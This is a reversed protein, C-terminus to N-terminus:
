AARIGTLFTEVQGRLTSAQRSLGHSAELVQGAAVGTETSADSVHRINGTVEETGQAAQQISRTIELTTANQEEIASAIISAIESITTITDGIQGIAAVTGQTASQVGDIQAAIEETARATQNALAKVESAVVAFGKGAEGARAAEITANLALLNTQAAINQILGVVEGIRSAAEALGRVSATTAQAQSVAKGAIQNSRAVQRSIEQISAAMEETAAAVTQVSASTQESAGASASARHNTQEALRSMTEATGSLQTSASAVGGLMSGVARDFERVMTEVAATRREKALREEAQAAELRVRELANDKFVQLAKAMGGVEDRRDQDTVAIDLAGGALDRMGNTLRQIPASVTRRVMLIAVGFSTAIGLAAALISWFRSEHFAETAQRSSETMGQNTQDIMRRLSDLISQFKPDFREEMMRVARQDDNALALAVVARGVGAMGEFGDRAARMDTALAPQAKTVLGLREDFVAIQKDIAASLAPMKAADDEAVLAYILRGTENLTSTARALWIAAEADQELLTTYRQDLRDLQIVGNATLGISLMAMLLLTSLVKYVLKLNQFAM